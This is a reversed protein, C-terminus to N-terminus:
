GLHYKTPGTGKLKFKHEKTLLDVIAQPVKSAILLNDVYVAVCEYHSPGKDEAKRM